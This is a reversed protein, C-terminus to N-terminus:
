GRYSLEDPFFENNLLEGRLYRKVENLTAKGLRHCEIGFSGAIHPTLICNPLGYFPSKEEPPEPDTVDLCAAIRGKKLEQILAEEDVLAGRAVNILLANDKMLALREANILHWYRPLNPACVVVVDSQAMLQELTLKQVKLRRAEDEELHNSYVVVQFEFNGLLKVLRYGVHGLSVIGITTGYYGPSYTLDRNWAAKGKRRFCEQYQFVGKLGALIMGLAFEAVPIANISANSTMRLGRRAAEDYLGCVTGATHFLLRLKKAEDLVEANLPISEWGTICVESERINKLLWERTYEVKAPIGGVLQLLSRLEEQDRSSYCYDFMDKTLSLVCKPKNM